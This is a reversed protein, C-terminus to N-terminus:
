LILGFSVKGPGEGDLENAIGDLLLELLMETNDAIDLIINRLTETNDAM